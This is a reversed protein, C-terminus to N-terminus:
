INAFHNFRKDKFHVEKETEDLFIIQYGKEIVKGILKVDALSHRKFLQKITSENEACTFLLEYDEGGFL